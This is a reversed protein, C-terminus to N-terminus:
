GGKITVTVLQGDASTTTELTATTNTPPLPTTPPDLSVVNRLILLGDFTGGIVALFPGGSPAGPDTGPAWTVFVYAGAEGVQDSEFTASTVPGGPRAPDYGHVTTGKRVYWPFPRASVTYSM